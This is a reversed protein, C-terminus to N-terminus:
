GAKTCADYMNRLRSLQKGVSTIRFKLRAIRSKEYPKVKSLELVVRRKEQELPLMSERIDAQKETVFGNRALERYITKM